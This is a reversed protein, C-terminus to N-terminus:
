IPSQDIYKIDELLEDFTQSPSCHNTENSSNLSVTRRRDFKEHKRLKRIYAPITPSPIPSPSHPRPLPLPPLQTHLNTISSQGSPLIARRPKYFSGTPSIARNLASDSRYYSYGNKLTNNFYYNNEVNITRWSTPFEDGFLDKLYLYELLTYPQRKYYHSFTAPLTNSSIQSFISNSPSLTLVRDSALNPLQVSYIETVIGKGNFEYLASESWQFIISYFNNLDTEYLIENPKRRCFAIQNAYSSLLNSLSGTDDNKLNDALNEVSADLNFIETDAKTEIKTTENLEEESVETSATFSNSSGTFNSSPIIVAIFSVRPVNPPIFISKRPIDTTFLTWEHIKLSDPKPVAVIELEETRYLIVTDSTEYNLFPESPAKILCKSSPSYSSTSSTSPQSFINKPIRRCILGTEYSFPALLHKQLIAILRQRRAYNVATQIFSWAFFLM